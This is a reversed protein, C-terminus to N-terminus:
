IGDAARLKAAFRSSQLAPHARTTEITNGNNNPAADAPFQCLGFRASAYNKGGYLVFKLSSGVPGYLTGGVGVGLM